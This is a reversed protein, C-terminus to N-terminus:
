NLFAKFSTPASFTLSLSTGASGRLFSLTFVTAQHVMEAHRREKDEEVLEAYKHIRQQRM